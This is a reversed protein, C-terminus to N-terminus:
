MEGFISFLGVQPSILGISNPWISTREFGYRVWVDLSGSSILFDVLFLFVVDVGEDEGGDGIEEGEGGFYWFVNLDDM